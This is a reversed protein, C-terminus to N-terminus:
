HKKSATHAAAAASSRVISVQVDFLVTQRMISIGGCQRREKQM